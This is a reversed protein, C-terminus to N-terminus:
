FGYLDSRERQSGANRSIGPDIDVVFGVETQSCDRFRRYFECGVRGGGVIGVRKINDEM